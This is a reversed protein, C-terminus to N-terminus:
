QGGSPGCQLVTREHDPGITVFQHCSQFFQGDGLDDLAPQRHQEGPLARLARAHAALQVGRERGEGRGEVLHAGLELQGDPLDDEVVLRAQEVLGHEGLGGQERDLDRQEPQDLGPAEGRVENGPVRDALQGGRVHGPHQGQGVRRPQDGSATPEHLVQRGAPRHDGHPGGLLLDGRVEGLPHADRRDVPRVGNHHGPILVGDLGHDRVERVALGAPQGDRVREVGRAHVRHELCETFEGGLQGVGRRPNRHDGVHGARQGTRLQAGGLVPNPVHALRHPEALGHAAQGGLAHRGEQLQARVRHQGRHALVRHVRVRDREHRGQALFAGLDFRQGRRDTPQVLAPNGHVPRLEEGPAARGAEVQGRIRELVLPVPQVLRFQVGAQGRGVVRQQTSGHFQGLGLAHDEQSPEGRVGLGPQGVVDDGARGQQGAGGEDLQRDAGTVVHGAGHQFFQCQLRWQYQRRVALHPELDRDPPRVVGAASGHRHVGAGPVLRPGPVGAPQEAGPVRRWRGVQARPRRLTRGRHRDLVPVVRKGPLPVAVARRELPQPRGPATALLHVGLHHQRLLDLGGRVAQVGRQEVGRQVGRAQEAGLVGDRQREGPLVNGQM